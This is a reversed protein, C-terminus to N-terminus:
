ENNEIQNKEDQLKNAVVYAYSINTMDNSLKINLDYFSNNKTTDVNSITGILIGEPFVSSYGTTVVSDGINLIIHKPIYNFKCYKYSIGDWKVSGFNGNLLKASIDIQSHLVSLAVSYNSSVNQVIGIIGDETFVGMGKKIGHLAGKNLTIYNNKKIFSNNAIFASLFDFQLSSGDLLQILDSNNSKIIHQNDTLLKANTELLSENIKNLLFYHKISNIKEHISSAQQNTWNYFTSDQYSNTNLILSFSLSELALFGLLIYNKAILIFLKRM